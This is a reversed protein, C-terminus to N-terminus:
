IAIYKISMKINDEWINGHSGLLSVEKMNDCLYNFMQKRLCRVDRIDM